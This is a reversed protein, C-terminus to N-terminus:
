LMMLCEQLQRKPVYVSSKMTSVIPHLIGGLEHTAIYTLVVLASKGRQAVRQSCSTSLFRSSMRPSPDKNEDLMHDAPEKIDADDGFVECTDFFIDPDLSDHDAPTANSSVM